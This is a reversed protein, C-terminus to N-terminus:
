DFSYQMGLMLGFNNALDGTDLGITSNLQINPNLQYNLDLSTYFQDARPIRLPQPLNPDCFETGDVQRCGTTRGYNRSYTAKVSYGIIKGTDMFNFNGGVALHHAVIINNTIETIGNERLGTLVFPSGIVRNETTWGNRYVFNNYYQNAGRLEGINYKADHRLLNTFEYVFQNFFGSEKKKYQFGYLGDWPSRFNPSSQTELIFQRYLRYERNNLKLMGSFDFAGVINGLRNIVDGGPASQSGAGRAFFVDVFDDFSSPLEGYRENEGGWQTNHIIGAQFNLKYDEPLIRMFLAKEHLYINETYRDNEFWGHGFYGRFTIFGSSFPMDIFESELMVKPLTPANGSWILSGVTLDTDRTYWTDRWEKKGAFLKFPGYKVEAYLEHFFLNENESYRAVADAAFAYDFRADTLRKRVYFHSFGNTSAPDYLGFKNSHMWFPTAEGTALAELRFGSELKIQAQASLGFGLCLFLAIIFLRRLIM